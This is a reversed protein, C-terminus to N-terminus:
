SLNITVKQPQTEKTKPFVLRLIGDKYLAEVNNLDLTNPMEFHREFSGYINEVRYYKREPLNDAFSREGKISLLGKECQVDIQDASVGPIDLLITVNEKTEYIDARPMWPHGHTRKTHHIM